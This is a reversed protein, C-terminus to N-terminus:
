QASGIPLQSPAPRLSTEVTAGSAAVTVELRCGGASAALEWSVGGTLEDAATLERRCCAGPRLTFSVPVTVTGDHRYSRRKLKFNRTPLALRLTRRHGPSPGHSPQAGQGRSGQLIGLLSAIASATALTVTTRGVRCHWVAVWAPLSRSGSEAVRVRLLGAAAAESESDPQARLIGSATGLAATAAWQWHCQCAAARM